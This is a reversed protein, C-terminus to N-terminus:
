KAWQINKKITKAPIGAIISNSEFVGSTVLSKIGIISNEKIHSGKLITVNSGVWVKNEIIVKKPENIIKNEQLITHGDCNRIEAGAAILCNDGILIKNNNGCSILNAGLIDNEKGIRIEQNNGQLIIHLNRIKSDNGIFISCNYGTIDIRLRKINTKKLIQINNNSGIIKIRSQKIRSLININNNKLINITNRLSFIDFIHIKM